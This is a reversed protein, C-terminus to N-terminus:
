LMWRIGEIVRRQQKKGQIDQKWRANGGNIL